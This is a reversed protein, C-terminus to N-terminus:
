YFLAVCEATTLSYCPTLPTGSTHIETCHVWLAQWFCHFKSSTSFASYILLVSADDTRESYSGRTRLPFKLIYIKNHTVASRLNLVREVGLEFLKIYLLSLFVSKGGIMHCLYAFRVNCHDQREVLLHASKRPWGFLSQPIVDPVICVHLSICLPFCAWLAHFSTGKTHNNFWSLLSPIVIRSVGWLRSSPCM